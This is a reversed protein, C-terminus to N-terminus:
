VPLKVVRATQESPLPPAGCVTVPFQTNSSDDDPSSIVVFPVHPTKKASTFPSEAVRRDLVQGDDVLSPNFKEGENLLPVRRRPSVDSPTEISIVM